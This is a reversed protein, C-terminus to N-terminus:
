SKYQHAKVHKFEMTINHKSISEDCIQKLQKLDYDGCHHHLAGEEPLPANGNQFSVINDVHMTM